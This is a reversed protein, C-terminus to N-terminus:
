SNIVDLKDPIYISTPACIHNCRNASPGLELSAWSDARSLSFGLSRNDVVVKLARRLSTLDKERDGGGQDSYWRVVVDVKTRGGVTAMEAKVVRGNVSHVAESLERNLGPRDECCIM